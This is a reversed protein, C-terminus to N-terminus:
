FLSLLLLILILLLCRTTTTTTTATTATTTTTTTGLNNFEFRKLSLILIKPLTEKHFQMVKKARQHKKCVNCYWSNAEDLM